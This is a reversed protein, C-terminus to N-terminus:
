TEAKPPLVIDMRIREALHELMAAQCAARLPRSKGDLAQDLWTDLERCLGYQLEFWEKWAPDQM